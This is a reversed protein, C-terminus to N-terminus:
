FQRLQLLIFYLSILRAYDEYASCSSEQLFRRWSQISLASQGMIYLGFHRCCRRKERKTVMQQSTAVFGLNLPIVHLNFEDMRLTRSSTWKVNEM